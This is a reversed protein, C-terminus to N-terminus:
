ARNRLRRPAADPPNQQATHERLRAVLDPYHHVFRAMREGHCRDQANVSAGPIMYAQMLASPDLKSQTLRQQAKPTFFFALTDMVRTLKDSPSLESGPAGEFFYRLRGDFSSQDWKNDLYPALMVGGQVTAHFLQDLGLIEEQNKKRLPDHMDHHIQYLTRGVSPIHHSLDTEMQSMVQLLPAAEIAETMLRKFAHLPHGGAADRMFDNAETQHYRHRCGILWVTGLTPLALGEDAQPDFFSPQTSPNQYARQIDRLLGSLTHKGNASGKQTCAIALAAPASVRLSGHPGDITVREVFLHQLAEERSLGQNQRLHDLTDYWGVHWGKEAVQDSLSLHTSSM